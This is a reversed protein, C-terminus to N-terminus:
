HLSTQDDDDEDDDNDDDDIMTTMTMRRMMYTEMGVINPDAVHIERKWKEVLSLLLNM